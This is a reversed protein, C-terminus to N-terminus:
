RQFPKGNLAGRGIVQIAVIVVPRKSVYSGLCAKHCGSPTLAYAYPVKVIIPQFIKVDRVVSFVPKVMVAVASEFLHCIRRADGTISFSPSAAASEHIVIPIPLEIQDDRIVRVEFKCVGRGRAFVRAAQPLANGDKTPWSAQRAASIDKIAIEALAAELVHREGCVNVARHAMVTEA